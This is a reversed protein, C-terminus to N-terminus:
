KCLHKKVNNYKQENKPEVYSCIFSVLDNVKVKDSGYRALQTKLYKVFELLNRFREQKLVFFKLGVMRKELDTGQQKVYELGSLFNADDVAYLENLERLIVFFHKEANSVKRSLSVKTLNSSVTNLASRKTKTASPKSNVTMSGTWRSIKINGPEPIKRRDVVVFGSNIKNM